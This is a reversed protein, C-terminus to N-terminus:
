RTRIDCYSTPYMFLYFEQYTEIVPCGNGLFVEKPFMVIAGDFITPKVKAFFWAVSCQIDVTSLCFLSLTLHCQPCPLDSIISYSTRHNVSSFAHYMHKRKGGKFYQRRMGLVLAPPATHWHFGTWPHDWIGHFGAMSVKWGKPYWAWNFGRSLLAQTGVM